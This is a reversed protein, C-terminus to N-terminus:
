QASIPEPAIGGGEEVCSAGELKLSQQSPFVFVMSGSSAPQLGASYRIASASVQPLQQMGSVLAVAMFSLVQSSHPLVFVTDCHSGSLLFSQSDVLSYRIEQLLQTQNEIRVCFSFPVGLVVHAPYELTVIIQPKEVKVDPLRHRTTVIDSDGVDRKWRVCATGVELKQSTSLPSLSFVQKYDGDPVLLTMEYKPASKPTAERLVCSNDDLGDREITISIVQLPVESFNKATVLLISTENLPLTTSRDTDSENKVKSPLLPDRRFQTLYRHNVVIATKGEIQLSRHVHVKQVNPEGSTPYYGLSVYLMVMKPRHWKIDLRCSWSEGANVFPISILGFSQQIKRISDSGMQLENNESSGSVGLLEVHNAESSISEMDRLSVLGGRTDVLNIKIEGSYIAHGKSIVNLSVPFNEGVLAPGPTTLIVDVLPDPEEVQILKQGSFSLSPDKTPLTEVRDEFKWLPLDEMAAPSEARCCISFHRGIRVIISLCELKGSQDSKIDYTFRRWKNTELKLVSVKEVRVNDGEPFSQHGRSIQENCIIFNCPSQNFQIELQDIEVPHPLQSLLSLTLMTPVGPKVAQEHFAVCALLVARLPSVLDIELCLPHDENINLSDNSMLASEGKLLNFVEESITVRQSFSAPGILEYDHKNNSSDIEDNDLVPLAAIELSYEIYDKLLSLRKSCERLYGLIAWLLTVWGEQRYRGAISDFLKKASGFDGSALYERAMRNACYSAMRQSNLTTYLDFSKRLLAIIEYSDQFRKAEEIAYAIYEADSLSSQMAFTDGRELLLAFQGVYVSPVVSDPNSEIAAVGEPRKLTESMSLQFGLSIKKERLYHAALQYYYAPQLEWETIQRESTGSPSVGASPISSTELLEAFVLFQRSVWEWHLLVAEPVGILRKYWAAHKWFWQIAEFVKGSHLLLTSVKFHLQEAVAKIEVLRQIPPLRTTIGIMEHLAFYANEYYKLAEVWDRRFEAYVAVKFCYRINLEPFNFTKKEIRTKLRRGEDRYYTLSLESFISALRSLSQKVELPDKQAYVILYKADIEARKRLAIMRDENGDDRPGTQVLVVVLKINQVRIVVKLNEIDTCVQLWQTPDGFVHDWNFLAAVVSPLRTRHKSLWDRKIFGGPQRHSDLTEKQKSAMLSIKSFDPLALTNMPPAESHLFSSITPHLEPVGVLSVLSVPPTRLEEPYEEM